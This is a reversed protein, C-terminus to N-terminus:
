QWLYYFGMQQEMLKERTPLYQSVDGFLLDLVTKREKEPRVLTPEGSIGVSKATDKVAEQFDAVQDILKMSAAQQGTWVKGDAIVKVDQYKMKRGDAVAQIFQSHMNDILSQLYQQESPTMERTPNGTDKFEGAKMVIAKLKAWHLLDGYNVWESIVGISGVISGEDAYIKNTASSVYYAGSAGVTEIAAVIRKKKEDRIRKVERYIEESAAVGGGPSNVHLIIAKVSDDEAYKKLQDVTNKPSLIVGELDVVAIKDGFSSGFSATQQGSHLTIYVLAFVALVFLFFAGGGIVIWLLTRSGKGDAM